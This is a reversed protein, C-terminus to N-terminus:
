EHPVSTESEPQRYENNSLPFARNEITRLDDTDTTDISEIRGTTRVLYPSLKKGELFCAPIIAIVCLIGAALFIATYVDHAAGIM